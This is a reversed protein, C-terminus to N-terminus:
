QAFRGELVLFRRLEAAVAQQTNNQEPGIGIARKYAPKILRRQRKYAPKIFRRKEM